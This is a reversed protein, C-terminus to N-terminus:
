AARLTSLKQYHPDAFVAGRIKLVFFFGAPSVWRAKKM